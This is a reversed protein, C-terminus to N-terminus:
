REGDPADTAIEAWVCKGGGGTVFGWRTAVAEILHLGRGGPVAPAVDRAAPVASTGDSVGLYIGGDQRSVEVTFESAAHRVANTALETVVLLCDDALDPRGWDTLAQAVARRVARPAERHAPFTWTRETEVPLAAPPVVENHVGCVEAFGQRADPTSFLHAPYACFLSFGHEDILENWAVELEIAGAVNGEDWLVAVMEGFGTVSRDGADLAAMIEDVVVQFRDRDLSGERMFRALTREAERVVIRKQAVAADLEGAPVRARIANWHAPSLVAIAADGRRLVATLSRAIVEVLDGDSEYFQVVHDGAGPRRDTDTSMPARETRGGQGNVARYGFILM